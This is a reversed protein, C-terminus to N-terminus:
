NFGVYANWNAQLKWNILALMHMEILEIPSIESLQILFRFNLGGKYWFSIQTKTQHYLTIM